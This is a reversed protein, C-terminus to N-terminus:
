VLYYTLVKYSIFFFLTTLLKMAKDILLSRVFSVSKLYLAVNYEAAVLYATTSCAFQDRLSMASLCRLLCKKVIFHEVIRSLLPTYSIPRFDSLEKPYSIKPIPTIIARKWLLPPKSTLTVNIILSRIATIEM